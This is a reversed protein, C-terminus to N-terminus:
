VNKWDDPCDQIIRVRDYGGTLAVFGYLQTGIKVPLDTDKMDVKKVGNIFVCFRGHSPVYLGVRDGQKIDSTSWPLLVTGGNPTHFWNSGDLWWCNADIYDYLEPVKIEDPALPSFGFTLGGWGTRAKEVYFLVRPKESSTFRSPFASFAVLDYWDTRDAHIAAKVATSRHKELTIGRGLTWQSFQLSEFELDNLATENESNTTLSPARPGLHIEHNAYVHIAKALNINSIMLTSQLKEGTVPSTYNVGNLQSSSASQEKFWAEISDRDYSFGDVCLVPDNM